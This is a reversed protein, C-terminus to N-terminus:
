GRRINKKLQTLVLPPLESVDNCIVAQPYYLEVHKAQIGVGIVICDKAANAVEHHLDFDNYKRKSAPLRTRHEKPIDDWSNAPEGDSLVVLIRESERSSHKRLSDACLNVNFADNNGGAGSSHTQRVMAEMARRHKWGFKEHFEKYVYENSNFGRVEFDIGVANLVEAFLIAAKTAHRMKSESSSGGWYMSGSEDVLITVKYDKHRRMIKRSFLKDSGTSFAWLRKNALRGTRFRGGQRNYRNDRMISNLKKKFYPLVPLIQHYLYEYCDKNKEWDPLIDPNYGVGGFVPDNSDVGDAGQSKKAEEEDMLKDVDQGFDKKKPDKKKGESLEKMTQQVGEINLKHQATQQLKQTDPDNPDRPPPQNQQEKNESDNESDGQGNGAGSGSGQQQQDSQESNEGGDDEDDGKGPPGPPPPNVLDYFIPWLRNTVIDLMDLTKPANYADYVVDEARELAAQVNEPLQKEPLKGWFQQQLMYIFMADDPLKQEMETSIQSDMKRFKYLFSNRTGPYTQMMQEEIRIDEVMNALQFLKMRESRETPLGRVKEFNMNQTFLAHGINHVVEAIVARDTMNLLDAEVYRLVKENTRYEWKSSPEFKVELGTDKLTTTFLTEMREKMKRRQERENIADTDAKTPFKPTM